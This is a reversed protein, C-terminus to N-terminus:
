RYVFSFIRYHAFHTSILIVMALFSDTVFFM